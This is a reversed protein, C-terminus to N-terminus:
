KSVEVPLKGQKIAIHCIGEGNSNTFTVKGDMLKAYNKSIILKLDKKDMSNNDTDLKIFDNFKVDFEEDKISCNPNTITFLLDEVNNNNIDINLTLDGEEMNDLFYDVINILM